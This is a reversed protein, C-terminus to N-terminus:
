QVPLSPRSGTSGSSGLLGGFGLDDLLQMFNKANAPKTVKVPTNSPKLDLSLTGKLKTSGTAEYTGTIAIDHNSNDLTMNLAGTEMDNGDHATFNISLPIKNGGQYDQNLDYFFVNAGRPDSFRVKHILKTHTDVWVDATSSDKMKDIDSTDSCSSTASKDGETLLKFLKTPELNTCVAKDYAKLNPKNIGIKYHYTNRGDIKEKGIKQKIVFAMDNANSTFVYKKTPGGVANIVEDLDAKSFSPVSSSASASYQDLLSHDIFYWQGNIGKFLSDLDSYQGGLLNGLGQLGDVKVYVDPNSTNSKITVADFSAKIGETSLNISASGNSGDSVSSVTGDGTFDGSIQFSGNMTSGESRPYSDAYGALKDYGKGMNSLSKAWMNDPQNPAYYGFYAAAGAGLVILVLVIIMGVMGLKPIGFKKNQSPPEAAPQQMSPEPMAPATPQIPAGYVAVSPSVFGPDTPSPPGAPESPTQPAPEPNTIPSQPATPQPQPSAPVPEAPPPTSVGPNPQPGTPQNLPNTPEM